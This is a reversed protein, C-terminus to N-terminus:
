SVKVLENFKESKIGMNKEPDLLAIGEPFRREIELVSKYTTQRSTLPRLDKPMFVRLLSISDVTSLLVPCVM